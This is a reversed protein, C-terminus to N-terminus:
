AEPGYKLFHTLGEFSWWAHLSNQDIPLLNNLNGQYVGHSGAVIVRERWDEDNESLWKVFISPLGQGASEIEDNKQRIFALLTLSNGRHKMALEIEENIHEDSFSYGCVALVASEKTMLASRFDRFISAFPDKQTIQYKTAQPYILLRQGAELPYGAGERRRVVIEEKSLFWDISGHLKQIIAQYSSGIDPPTDFISSPAWFAMTGGSFGDYTPIQCLSLADELLTDYNTTFFLVPPRRELGARRDQFLAKVFDVHHDITVLPDTLTGIKESNKDNGPIYGFRMTKRISDQILHHVERLTDRDRDKGGLNVRKSMSRGALSIFDGLHSLIHEVHSGDPLESRISKFINKNEGSLMQEVRDTLPIMLPIGADKSVGAGLLWIQQPLDLFQDIQSKCDMSNM